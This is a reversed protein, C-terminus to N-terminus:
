DYNVRTGGGDNSEYAAEVVAMTRYADEVSAPLKDTAGDLYAMLSAMSRMFAEPFWSGALEQKKWEPPKGDEFEVSEFEDPLGRPYDLLVGLRTKVAGRTGEWKIFSEQHRPGYAHGHNTEINARLMDGYDLIITSRTSALKPALPHRTSKAYVGAPDGLFSRILDVYHVSHYLIEVRPTRELFPWMQWPTYVTMRAELDVIEGIRGSEIMRRAAAVAPAFRLQFNVAGTLKKRRCVERIARAQQITEGMPKQILVGHGDPLGQLVEPVAAAPVAVDFVAGPPAGSAADALTPFVREIGYEAALARARDDVLDHIGAMRFGAQRYAPLHADRVIGGAGILVIPRNLPITGDLLSDSSSSM